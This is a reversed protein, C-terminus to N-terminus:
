ALDQPQPSPRSKPLARMSVGCEACFTHVPTERGCNPCVMAPGIEIEASEQILGLHIVRRLWSLAILALIVLLALSALGSYLMQVTAGLVVLVTAAMTSLTPNGLRGLAERDRSPARYRLWFAAAAAGIAGASLIPVAVALELLRLVWPGVAGVPRLGARLLPTSLVVAFAGAFSVASASGFTAGDLVDNFRRYPLLLLPGGLMCAVSLAPVLLGRALYANEDTALLDVGSPSFIRTLAGVALGSMVGWAMTLAIVHLPEDEYLDVDYMYLVTLLPLLAAAAVLAVPFLGAVGLGVVMAVGLVLGVRFTQM